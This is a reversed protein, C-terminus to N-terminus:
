QNSVRLTMIEFPRLSLLEGASAINEELMNCVTLRGGGIIKTELSDPTDNYLRVIFGDGDEAPKITEIVAHTNDTRILSNFPQTHVIELPRNFAYACAAVDSQYINGNHGYLAYSFSHTGKDQNSCPYMESRLLDVSICGDKCRYGYKSDNILAVGFDNESMDVWKHACMEYQAAQISNNELMSRRVSGSTGAKLM